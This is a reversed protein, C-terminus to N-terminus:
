WFVHRGVAYKAVAVLDVRLRVNDAKTSGAKVPVLAVGDFVRYFEEKEAIKVSFIGQGGDLAFIGVKCAGGDEAVEDAVAPTSAHATATAM